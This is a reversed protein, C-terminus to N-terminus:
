QKDIREKLSKVAGNVIKAVADSSVTAGTIAVIEADKKSRDGTKVVLFKVVPCDGFQEKFEDNVIKDGFGPTESSKLVGIGLVKDVKADVAVLLRIKDAFGGGIAEIAYGVVTKGRPEGQEGAAGGAVTYAIHYTVEKGAEDTITYIVRKGRKDNVAREEFVCDAGLLLRMERELKERANRDIRERLQGDVGAVLLGFVM